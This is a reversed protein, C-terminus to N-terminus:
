PQRIYNVAGDLWAKMLDAGLGDSYVRRFIFAEVKRYPSSKGDPGFWTFLQICEPPNLYQLQEANLNYCGGKELSEWYRVEVPYHEKFKALYASAYDLIHLYDAQDEPALVKFAAKVSPMAWKYAATALPSKFIALASQRLKEPEVSGYSHLLGTAVMYKTRYPSGRSQQPTEVMEKLSRELVGEWSLKIGTAPLDSPAPTISWPKPKKEEPQPQPASPATSTVLASTQPPASKAPEPTKFLKQYGIYGAFGIVIGVFLGIIHAAIRNERVCSRGVGLVDLIKSM